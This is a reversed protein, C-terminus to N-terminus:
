VDDTGEVKRAAQHQQVRVVSPHAGCVYARVDVRDRTALGRVRGVGDRQCPRPRPMELLRDEGPRASLGALHHLQGAAFPRDAVSQVLAFAEAQRGRVVGGGPPAPVLHVVTGHRRVEGAIKRVEDGSRLVEGPSPRAFTTPGARGTGGASEGVAQRTRTGAPLRSRRRQLCSRPTDTPRRSGRLDPPRCRPSGGGSYWSTTSPPSSRSRGCSSGDSGSPSPGCCRAVPRSNGNPGGRSM